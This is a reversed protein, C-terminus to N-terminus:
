WGERYGAAEALHAEAVRPSGELDAVTRAVRLLRDYGRARGGGPQAHRAPRAGAGGRLPAAGQPAPRHPRAAAGVPAAPLTRASPAPLRLRGLGHVGRRLPLPEPGGGAPLAGAAAPQGARALHHRVGGRAAAPPGGAGPSPVRAARGP